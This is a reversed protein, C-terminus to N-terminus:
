ILFAAIGSMALAPLSCNELSLETSNIVGNFSDAALWLAAPNRRVCSKLALLPAEGKKAGPNGSMALAPLSCNEM